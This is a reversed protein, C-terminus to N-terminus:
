HGHAANINIQTAPIRYSALVAAYISAESQRLTRHGGSSSHPVLFEGEVKRLLTEAEGSGTLAANVLVLAGETSQADASSDIVVYDGPILGELDLARTRVRYISVNENGPAVTAVMHQAIAAAPSGKQPTFAEADTERMGVSGAGAFFDSPLPYDAATSIKLLTDVRPKHPAGKLPRNITSPQVGAKRALVSPDLGSHDIAERMWQVVARQLADLPPPEMLATHAYMSMKATIILASSSACTHAYKTGDHFDCVLDLTDLAFSARSAHGDLGNALSGLDGM